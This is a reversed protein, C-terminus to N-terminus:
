SIADGPCNSLAAKDRITRLLVDIADHKSVFAAAGAAEARARLRVNDYLTLLLIPCNSQSARLSELAGLTSQELRNASVIIIDPKAQPLIAVAEQLGKAMGVIQLDPELSLYMKLARRITHSEELLLIRIM